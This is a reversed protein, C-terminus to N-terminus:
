RAALAREEVRIRALILLLFFGTAVPGTILANAMMAVGALEGIVAVYNPHRLVRYPGEVIRKSGPPVLVRFTWRNGLTAIAWYKLGKALVFVVIGAPLVPHSQGHRFWAEVMMALFGGPYALKMLQYVDGIPELAGQARLSRDHSSAVAAEIVMPIFVILGLALTM